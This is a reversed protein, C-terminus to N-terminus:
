GYLTILEGNDNFEEFPKPWALDGETSVKTKFFINLLKQDGQIGLDMEIKSEPSTEFNSNIKRRGHSPGPSFIDDGDFFSFSKFLYLPGNKMEMDQHCSYKEGRKKPSPSQCSNTHLSQNNLPSSYKEGRKKPSPSQCSNTHLSQNNLPSSYKEGRKKPSPSQCSNTHLSQNNLPSSYKEGRKKPSPSQCSNTHLSQNNLPSYYKKGRKRARKKPGADSIINLIPIPIPTPNSNLKQDNPLSSCKKSKKKHISDTYLNKPIKEPCTLSVNRKKSRSSPGSCLTHNRENPLNNKCHECMDVKGRKRIECNTKIKFM